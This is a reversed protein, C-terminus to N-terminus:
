YIKLFVIYDDFEEFLQELTMNDNKLNADKDNFHVDVMDLLGSLYNVKVAFNVNQPVFGSYYLFYAANLASVVVGVLEGQNNFLPGGSNGPQLPNSIQFVRPDEDIGYNSNIVGVSLRPKSGMVSGLPFGLTFVDQGVKVESSKAISFSISPLFSPSFTSDDVELIALDNNTDKLILKCNFEKDISPLYAKILNSESVVHYNTVIIGNKSVFFGSGSKLLNDTSPRRDNRGYISKKVKKSERSMYEEGIFTAYDNWGLGVITDQYFIVPYFREDGFSNFSGRVNNNLRYFHVLYKSSDLGILHEFYEPNTYKTEWPHRVSMIEYVDNISIGLSLNNINNVNQSTYDPRTTRCGTQISIFFLIYFLIAFLIKCKKFVVILITNM